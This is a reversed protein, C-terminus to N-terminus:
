NLFFEIDDTLAFQEDMAHDLMQQKTAGAPFEGYGAVITKIELTREPDFPDSALATFSEAWFRRQLKQKRARM